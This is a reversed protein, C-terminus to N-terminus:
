SNTANDTTKTYRLTVYCPKSVQNNNTSIINVVFQKKTKRLWATSRESNEVYVGIPYDFMEGSNSKGNVFGDYSILNDISDSSVDIINYGSVTSSLTYTKQYIPKGDTWTGVVQEDLSYNQSGGKLTKLSEIADAVNNVKWSSDKPSYGIEKASITYATVGAISGFIIGLAVILITTRRISKKQEQRLEKLIEEKM